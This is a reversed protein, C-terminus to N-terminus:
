AGEKGLALSMDMTLKMLYTQVKELDTALTKDEEKDSDRLRDVVPIIRGLLALCFKLRKAEAEKNRDKEQIWWPNITGSIM